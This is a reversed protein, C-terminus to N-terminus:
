QIAFTYNQEVNSDLSTQNGSSCVFWIILDSKPLEGIIAELRVPTNTSNSFAFKQHETVIGFPTNLTYYLVVEWPTTSDNPVCKARSLHYHIWVSGYQM